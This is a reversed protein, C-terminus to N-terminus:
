QRAIMLKETFIKGEQEVTLLLLGEPVGELGIQEDYRGGFDKIYEKYVQKGAADLLMITVPAQQGTFRVRLQNDAPNPFAEFAELELAPKDEQIKMFDDASEDDSEWHNVVDGDKLIIVKRHVEKHDEQGIGVVQM